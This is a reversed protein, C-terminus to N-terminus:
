GRRPFPTVPNIRMAKRSAGWAARGIAAARPLRRPSWPLDTSAGTIVDALQLAAATGLTLEWPGFGCAVLGDGLPGVLPLADFTASAPATWAQTIAPDDYHRAVWATGDDRRSGVWLEDGVPTVIRGGDDLHFTDRGIPHPAAFALWHWTMTELRMRLAPPAGVPDPTTSVRCGADAPLNSAVQGGAARFAEFLGDRYAVVDLSPQDDRMLQPRTAMPLGTTDTFTPEIGCRREARAEYRLWFAEHGDATVTATPRRHVRVGLEAAHALVQQQGRAAEAAYRRVAADGFWRWVHHHQLEQHTTALGAMLGDRTGPTLAHDVVVAPVGGRVLALGLTLGTLGGGVVAVPSHDPHAPM